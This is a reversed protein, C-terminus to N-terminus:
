HLIPEVGTDREVGPVASKTFGIARNRDDSTFEIVPSRHGIAIISQSVIAEGVLLDTKM